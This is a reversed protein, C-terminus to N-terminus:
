EKRPKAAGAIAKELFSPEWRLPLARSYGEEGQPLLAALHSFRQARHIGPKFPPTRPCKLWSTGAMKHYHRPVQVGDVAAVFPESPAIHTLIEEFFRGSLAEYDIRSRISFLRYFASWDSKTPGLAILAQTITHRAFSFLHGFLLAKMRLFTREQRFACRHADVVRLLERLLPTSSSSLENAPVTTNEPM